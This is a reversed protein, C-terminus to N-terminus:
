SQLIDIRKSQEYRLWYSIYQNMLENFNEKEFRLFQNYMYEMDIRELKNIVIKKEPLTGNYILETSFLHYYNSKEEELEFGYYELLTSFQHRKRSHMTILPKDDELWEFSMEMLRKGIGQRQFKKAVRLTCIKKEEKTAKLIAVGAICFEKECIIIERDRKLNKKNDFLNRYWKDFGPYEINLRKVFRYIQNFYIDQEFSSFQSYKLYIENQNQKKRM